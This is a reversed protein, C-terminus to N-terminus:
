LEQQKSKDEYTGDCFAILDKCQRVLDSTDISTEDQLLKIGEALLPKGAPCDAGLVFLEGALKYYVGANGDQKLHRVRQLTKRATPFFSKMASRDLEHRTLYSDILQQHIIVIETLDFADKIAELKYANHLADRAEVARNQKLLLDGLRKYASAVLPSDEGSTSIFLRIAEKTKIEAEDLDGLTMLIKSVQMAAKATLSSDWGREVDRSKYFNYAERAPGLAEALKGQRERIGALGLLIGGRNGEENPGKMDVLQLSQNFYTEAEGFLGLANYTHGINECLAANKGTWGEMEHFGALAELYRGQKWRTFALAQVAKITLDDRRWECAPLVEQLAQDAKNLRYLMIWLDFLQFFVVLTRRDSVGYRAKYDAYKVELIGEEHVQEIALEPGEDIKSAASSPPQSVLLLELVLSILIVRPWRLRNGCCCEM